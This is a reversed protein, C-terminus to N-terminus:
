GTTSSTRARLACAMSSPRPWPPSSVRMDRSVGICPVRLYAALGRGILRAVDENIENPYLGRVDYAKFIDPNIQM